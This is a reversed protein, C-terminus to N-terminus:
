RCLKDPLVVRQLLTHVATPPKRKVMFKIIYQVEQSINELIVKLFRERESSKVRGGERGREREGERGGVRGEEVSCLYTCERGGKRGGERGGERRGEREGERGGERGGKM